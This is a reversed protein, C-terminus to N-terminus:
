VVSADFASSKPANRMADLAADVDAKEIRKIRLLHQIINDAEVSAQSPIADAAKDSMVLSDRNVLEMEDDKRDLAYIGQVNDVATAFVCFCLLIFFIGFQRTSENKVKLDGYGVTTMTMVTWYFSQAATWSELVAFSLLGVFLVLLISAVSCAVKARATANGRGLLSELLHSQLHVLWNHAFSRSMHFVFAVGTVVYFVTFIRSNDTTPVFQGYGVTTVSVTIFYICDTIGWKEVTGYYGCGIVYYLLLAAIYFLGVKLGQTPSAHTSSGRAPSM